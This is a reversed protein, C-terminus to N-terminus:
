AENPWTLSAATELAEQAERRRRSQMLKLANEIYKPDSILEIDPRLSPFAKQCAAFDDDIVEREDPAKHDYALIADMASTGKEIDKDILEMRFLAFETATFCSALPSEKSLDIGPTPLSLEEYALACTARGASINAGRAFRWCASLM